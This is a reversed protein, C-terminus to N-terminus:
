IASALSFGLLGCRKRLLFWFGFVLFALEVWRGRRRLRVLIGKVSVM